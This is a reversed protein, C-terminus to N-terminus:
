KYAAVDFRIIIFDYACYEKSEALPEPTININVVKHEWEKCLVEWDYAGGDCISKNSYVLTYENKDGLTTRIDHTCYRVGNKDYAVGQIEGDRIYITFLM